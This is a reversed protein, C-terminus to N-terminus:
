IELFLSTQSQSQSKDKPVLDWVGVRLKLLFSADTTINNLIYVFESISDVLCIPGLVMLLLIESLM